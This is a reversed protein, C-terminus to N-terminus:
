RFILPFIMGTFYVFFLVSAFKSVKVPKGRYSSPSFINVKSRQSQALLPTVQDELVSIADDSSPSSLSLGIAAVNSSPVMEMAVHHGGGGGREIEESEGGNASDASAM